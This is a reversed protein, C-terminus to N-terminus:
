RTRAKLEVSPRKTLEARAQELAQRTQEATPETEGKRELALELLVSARVKLELDTYPEPIKGADRLERRRALPARNVHREYSSRNKFITELGDYTELDGNRNPTDSRYPNFAAGDVALKCLDLGETKLYPELLFFRDTNIRSRPHNCVERWYRVLEVAEPWLGSGRAEKAKDRRLRRIKAGQSRVTEELGELELDKELCAPCGEHVQEGSVTDLLVINRETAPEPDPVARLARAPARDAVDRAELDTAAESTRTATEEAVRRGSAASTGTEAGLDGIRGQESM